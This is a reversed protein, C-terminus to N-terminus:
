VPFSPFWHEPLKLSKNLIYPLLHSFHFALRPRDSTGFMESQKASGEFLGCIIRHASSTRARSPIKAEQTIKNKSRKLRMDKQFRLLAISKKRYFLV